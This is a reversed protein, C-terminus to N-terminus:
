SQIGFDAVSQTKIRIRLEMDSVMLYESVNVLELRVPGLLRKWRRTCQRAVVSLKAWVTTPDLGDPLNIASIVADQEKGQCLLIFPATSPLPKLVDCIEDRREVVPNPPSAKGRVIRRGARKKCTIPTETASSSLTVPPDKPAETTRPTHDSPGTPPRRPEILGPAPGVSDPRCEFLPLEHGAQHTIKGLHQRQFGPLQIVIKHGLVDLSVAQHRLSIRTRSSLSMISSADASLINHWASPQSHNRDSVTHSGSEEDNARSAHKSSMYAAPSPPILPTRSSM